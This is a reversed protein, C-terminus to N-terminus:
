KSDTILKFLITLKSHRNPKSLNDTRILKFGSQSDSYNNIQSIDSCIMYQYTYIYIYRYIFTLIYAHVYTVNKKSLHMYM